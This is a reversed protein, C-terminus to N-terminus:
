KVISSVTKFEPIDASVMLNFLAMEVTTLEVGHRTLRELAITRNAESRSSVADAVVEVDHGANRLDRATQFVCVHAEVGCILIHQRGSAELQGIFSLSDAASFTIKEIPRYWQGMAEQVEPITAGLGTPYQETTLMPIKLATCGQILRVIERTVEDSRHIVPMMREQVDIVVLMTHNREQM